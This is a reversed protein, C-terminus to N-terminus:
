SPTVRVSTLAHREWVASTSGTFALYAPSPLAFRGSISAKGNVFVSVVGAKSVLKVTVVGAKRMRIPSAGNLLWRLGGTPAAGDTWGFSSSFQDGAGQNVDIALASGGLGGFGLQPGGTGLKGETAPQGTSPLLALTIGEAAGNGGDMTFGFEVTQERLDLPQPWLASANQNPGDNLVLAGASIKANGKLKWAADTFNVPTAGAPPAAKPTCRHIIQLYLLPELTLTAFSSVPTLTGQGEAFTRGVSATHTWSCKAQQEASVGFVSDFALTCPAGVGLPSTEVKRWDRGTPRPNTSPDIAQLHRGAAGTCTGTFVIGKSGTLLGSPDEVVSNILLTAAPAPDPDGVAIIEFSVTSTVSANGLEDLATVRLEYSGKGLAAGDLRGDWATETAGAPLQRTETRLVTGDAKAYVLRVTAPADLRLSLTTGTGNGAGPGPAFRPPTLAVDSLAPGVGDPGHGLITSSDVAVEHYGDTDIDGLNTLLGSRSTLGPVAPIADLDVTGPTAPVATVIKVQGDPLAVFALDDTGNGDQDGISILPRLPDKSTLLVGTSAPSLTAPAPTRGYIVGFANNQLTQSAARYVLLDSRGDGNLDGAKYVYAPLGGDSSVRVADAPPTAANFSGSRPGGLLLFRGTPKGNDVYIDDKGDANFDGIESVGPPILSCYVNFWIWTCSSPNTIVYQRPTVASPVISTVRPGGLWITTGATSSPNTTLGKVWPLALDDAGDGNVDGIAHAGRSAIPLVASSAQGLEIRAPLTRSGYVLYDRSNTAVIADALGDRDVDGARYFGTVSAYDVTSLAIKVGRAGPSAPDTLDLNARTRSGFIIAGNSQAEAGFDDIGDGNVDGLGAVSASGRI